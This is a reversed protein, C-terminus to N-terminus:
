FRHSWDVTENRFCKGISFFKGPIQSQKLRALTHTSLLTTHTRLIPRKADEEKWKYQWGKSGLVGSEHSEKVRKMIEKDPLKGEIDKLFFTDHLERVPHDQATFLADFNWFSTDTITGTMEKFGLDAWVRKAYEISQNVFHKKGGFIEPVRAQIDYHRFKKNKNWDAIVQSNVEELLDSKIEMGSLQKGLNSLEIKISKEERVEIIDKRDKLQQLGYSLEPSLSSKEIPLAELFQEELTKKVLEEKTANLSMKGNTLNILAKKRLVGLAAKFENDSLKSLKKAEEMQLHNNEELTILLRREPLSNKKYYIGNTGLDIITKIETKLKIIGKSELFTLARMVSVEDLGSKDKIKKLSLSIFPLIKREIPSLKDIIGTLDSNEENTKSM